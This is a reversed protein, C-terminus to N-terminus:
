KAVKELKEGCYPCYAIHADSVASDYGEDWVGWYGYVKGIVIDTLEDKNADIIKCSHIEDYQRPM